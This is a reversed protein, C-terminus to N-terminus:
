VELATRATEPLRLSLWDDTIAATDDPQAIIRVLLESVDTDEVEAKAIELLDRGQVVEARGTLQYRGAVPESRYLAQVSQCVERIKSLYQIADRQYQVVVTLREYATAMDKIDQVVLDADTENTVNRARLLHRTTLRLQTVDVDKGSFDAIYAYKEPDEASENMETSGPSLILTGEYLDQKAIHTDGVVIMRYLSHPLESYSLVQGYNAGLIEKVGQHCLLLDAQQFEHALFRALPDFGKAYVTLGANPLTVVTDNFYWIGPPVINDEIQSYDDLTALWHPDTYDHNGRIVVVHIGSQKCYDHMARVYAMTRATPRSMHLFDGAVVVDKIGNQMLKYIGDSFARNFDDFRMELGYQRYGLHVDSLVGVKKSGTMVGETEPYWFVGPM